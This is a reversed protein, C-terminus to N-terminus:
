QGKKNKKSGELRYEDLSMELINKKKKEGKAKPGALNVLDEGFRAERAAKREKEEELEKKHEEADITGDGFRAAREKRKENAMEKTEVGFKLARQRRKEDEEQMTAIVTRTDLFGEGGKEVQDSIGQFRMLRVRRKEALTLEQLSKQKTPDDNQEAEPNKELEAVNANADTVPAPEANATTAAAQVPQAPAVPEEVVPDVKTEETTNAAAKAPAQKPEAPVKAPKAADKKAPAKKKPPM